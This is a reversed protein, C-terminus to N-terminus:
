PDPTVCCFENGEPDALIDWRIDGGRRRVLTAGARLFAETDGAVDVHMRNKVTKPEPVPNIWITPGAGGPDIIPIPAERPPPSDPPPEIDDRRRYGLAHCWWDAMRQHDNADLCLDKFQALAAPQPDDPVATM